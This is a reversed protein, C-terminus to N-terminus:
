REPVRNAAPEARRGARHCADVAYRLEDETFNAPARRMGFRTGSLYVADAGYLLAAELRERDGAPALVEPKIADTMSTMRM